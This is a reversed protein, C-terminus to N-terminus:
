SFLLSQKRYLAAMESFRIDYCIGLGIKFKGLQFTNLSNGPSITSSEKFCTSGPINVDFLHVKRHKAIMNGDPDWVTCTNYIKEDCIEPISGGVIYVKNSKAAQSLAKCTEGGPIAESYQRFLATDYPSNFCEPLIVLTCGNIKAKQIRKVAIAVNTPKHAVVTLQLIAVRFDSHNTSTM